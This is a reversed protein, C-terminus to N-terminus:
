MKKFKKRFVALGIVGSCLLLITTPEPVPSESYASM